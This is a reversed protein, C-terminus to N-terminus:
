RGVHSVRNGVSVGLARATDATLTITDGSAHCDGSVAVFDGLRGTSLIATSEAEGIEAVEVDRAERISRVDDVRATM